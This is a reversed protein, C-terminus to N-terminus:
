QSLQTKALAGCIEDKSQQSRAAHKMLDRKSYFICYLSIILRNCLLSVNGEKIILFFDNFNFMHIKSTLSM